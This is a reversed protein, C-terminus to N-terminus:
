PVNGCAPCGLRSRGANSSERCPPMTPAHVAGGGFVPDARVEVDDALDLKYVLSGPRRDQAHREGVANGPELGATRRLCELRPERRPEERAPGVADGLHEALVLLTGPKEEGIRARREAPEAVWRLRPENGQGQVGLQLAALGCARVVVERVADGVQPERGQRRVM